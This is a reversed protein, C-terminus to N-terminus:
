KESLDDEPRHRRRAFPVEILAVQRQRMHHGPICREAEHGGAGQGVYESTFISRRVKRLVVAAPPASTVTPPTVMPQPLSTAAAGRASTLVTISLGPVSLSATSM